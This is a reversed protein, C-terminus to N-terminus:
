KLLLFCFPLNIFFIPNSFSFYDIFKRIDNKAKFYIYLFTVVVFLVFIFIPVLIIYLETKIDSDFYITYDTPQYTIKIFPLYFSDLDFDVPVKASLIERYDNKIQRDTTKTSYFSKQSILDSLNLSQLLSNEFLISDKSCKFITNQDLSLNAKRIITEIKYLNRGNSVSAQQDNLMGNELVFLVILKNCKNCQIENNRISEDLCYGMPCMDSTQIPILELIYKSQVLNKIELQDNLRLFRKNNGNLILKSNVKFLDDSQTSSDYYNTQSLDVYEYTYLNFEYNTLDTLYNQATQYYDNFIIKLNFLGKTRGYIINFCLRPLFERNFLEIENKHKLRYNSLLQKQFNIEKKFYM